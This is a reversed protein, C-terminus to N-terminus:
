IELFVKINDGIPGLGPLYVNGIMFAVIKFEASM